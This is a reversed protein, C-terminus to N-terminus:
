AYLFVLYGVALGVVIGAVVDATYHRKLLIRSVCVAAVIIVSLAYIAFTAYTLSLLTGLATIRAAHVSPFSSLDAKDMLSKGIQGTSNDPRAKFYLSKVAYTIIVIIIFAALLKESLAFNGSLLFYLFLAAYAPLGGPSTVDRVYEDFFKKMTSM